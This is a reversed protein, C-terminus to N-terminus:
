DSTKYANQVPIVNEHTQYASLTLLATLGRSILCVSRGLKQFNVKKVYFFNRFEFIHFFCKETYSSTQRWVQVSKKWLRENLKNFTKAIRASIEYDM